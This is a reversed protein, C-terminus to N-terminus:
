LDRQSRRLASKLAELPCRRSNALTDEEMDQLVRNQRPNSPGLVGIKTHQEACFNEYLQLVGDLPAIKHASNGSLGDLLHTLLLHPLVLTIRMSGDSPKAAPRFRACRVNQPFAKVMLVVVLVRRPRSHSILSEKVEAPCRIKTKSDLSPDLLFQSPLFRGKVAKHLVTQNQILYVGVHSTQLGSLSTTGIQYRAMLGLCLHQRPQFPRTPCMMEVFMGQGFNSM